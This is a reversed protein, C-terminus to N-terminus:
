LRHTRRDDADPQAADARDRGSDASDTGRFPRKTAAESGGGLISRVTEAANNFESLIGGAQGAVSRFGGVASSLSAMLGGISGTFRDASDTINGIMNGNDGRRNRAARARLEAVRRCEARARAAARARIEDREDDDMAAFRPARGRRSEMPPMFPAHAGKGHHRPTQDEDKGGSIADIIKRGALLTGATLAVAAVSAGGIMLVKTTMSPAPARRGEADVDGSPPVARSELRESTPIHGQPVRRPGHPTDSDVDAFRTM